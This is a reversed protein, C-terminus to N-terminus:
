DVIQKGLHRCSLLVSEVVLPITDPSVMTRMLGWLMIMSEMIMITVLRIKIMVMIGLHIRIEGLPFCRALPSLLPLMLTLRMKRKM